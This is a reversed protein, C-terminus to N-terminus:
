TIVLNAAEIHRILAEYAVLEAAVFEHLAEGPQIPLEKTVTRM